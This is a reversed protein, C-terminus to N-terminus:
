RTGVALIRVGYPALSLTAVGRDDLSVATRDFVDRLVGRAGAATVRVEAAADGLNVVVVLRDAGASRRFAFVSAHDTEVIEQDGSVLAPHARRLALLRQYTALLSDPQGRQSELSVGRGTNLPSQDWWPGSNRYWVAMGPGVRSTWPYAERLPIDGGDSSSPDRIQKGTMGLEQGYYLLPVGQLTLNLAAGLKAKRLDGGVATAFREVDHNELFVIQRKGAPTRRRTEEVATRLKAKDFSLIAGRLPFAFVLDADGRELWAEGYGWDAQEALLGVKPDVRRLERFLPTWFRAFLDSLAPKEDLRDQMHDLRFGDVGDDRGPASPRLFHTFVEAHIRQMDPHLMNVTAIRVRRGDFTGVEEKDWYGTQYRTNASDEYLLYPAYRSGPRRYSDTFWPHRGSVYQLEMDLYIRMGRRHLAGALTRLDQETGFAPDIGAFDDLFYNHYFPSPGIPTLLLTTVGLRELHDLQSTIGPLDGQQDGNSDRFSRVFIQYFVEDRVPASAQASAQAALPARAAGLCLSLTLTARLTRLILTM